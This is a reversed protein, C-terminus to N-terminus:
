AEVKADEWGEEVRGTILRPDPECPDLVWTWGQATSQGHPQGPRLRGLRAEIRTRPDAVLRGRVHFPNVQLQTCSFLHRHNRIFNRLNRFHFVEGEPSRLHWDKASVNTEFKGTRPNVANNKMMGEHHRVMAVPAHMAENCKQILALDTSKNLRDCRKCIAADYSPVELRQLGCQGCTWPVKREKSKGTCTASCFRRRMRIPSGCVLCQTRKRGAIGRCKRSCYKATKERRPPVAFSVGCVVCVMEM